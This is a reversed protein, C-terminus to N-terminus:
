WAVNDPMADLLASHVRMVDIRVPVRCIAIECQVSAHSANMIACLFIVTSRSFNMAGDM